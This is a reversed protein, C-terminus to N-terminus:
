KPAQRLFLLNKLRITTDSYFGNKAQKGSLLSLVFSGKIEFGMRELGASSVKSALCYNTLKTWLGFLWGM